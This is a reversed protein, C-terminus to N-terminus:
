FANLTLTDTYVTYGSFLGLGNEVNSYVQVPQAFPDGGVQENLNHSIIYRYIDQSITLLKVIIYTDENEYNNKYFSSSLSLTYESNKFMEDNFAVGYNGNLTFEQNNDKIVPDDTNFVQSIESYGLFSFPPEYDYAPNLVSLALFYFDNTGTKDKIKIKFKINYSSADEDDEYYGDNENYIYAGERQMSTDTKIINNPEFLSTAAIVSKLPDYDVNIEYTVGIQPYVTSKYFGTDTHQIEEVFIDNKYLKVKASTLYEIKKDDLIGQSKSIRVTILSDKTIIGNVVIHRETDDIDIDIKKKMKCSSVSLIIAFIIIIQKMKKLKFNM